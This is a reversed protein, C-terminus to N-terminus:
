SESDFILNHCVMAENPLCYSSCRDHADDPNIVVLRRCEGAGSMWTSNRRPVRLSFILQSGDPAASNVALLFSSNCHHTRM